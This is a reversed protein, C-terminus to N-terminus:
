AQVPCSIGPVPAEAQPRHAAAAPDPHQLPSVCSHAGEMEVLAAQHPWSDLYFQCHVGSSACKLLLCGQQVRMHIKSPRYLQQQRKTSNQEANTYGHLGAQKGKHVGITHLLAHLSTRM